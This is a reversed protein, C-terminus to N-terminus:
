VAKRYVKARVENYIWSATAAILMGNIFLVIPEDGNENLAPVYVSLFGCATMNAYPILGCLKKCGNLSLIDCKLGFLFLKKLIYGTILSTFLLIKGNGNLLISVAGDALTEM